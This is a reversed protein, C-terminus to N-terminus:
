ENDTEEKIEVETFYGVEQKTLEETGGGSSTVDHKPIIIADLPKSGSYVGTDSTSPLPEKETYIPEGTEEDAEGTPYQISGEQLVAAMGVTTQTFYFLVALRARYEYTTDNVLGTLDQVEGDLLISVDNRQCWQNVYESGLFDAFSLMDDVATNEYAAIEGTEPHEVPLGHTYLDVTISFRSGYYGIPQDEVYTNVYDRTRKVNGPTLTVLSLNPKAVRSQKTFTVTAGGFYEKALSRFLEKAESVRM